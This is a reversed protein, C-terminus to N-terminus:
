RAFIALEFRGAFGVLIVINLRLYHCSLDSVPQLTRITVEEMGDALPKVEVEETQPEASSGQWDTLNTSVQVYYSLDSTGARRRYNMGHYLANTVPGTTLHGQPLGTTEVDMPSLDLAYEAANVLGDGDPDAQLGTQESPADRRFCRARWESYNVCRRDLDVDWPEAGSALIELPGRGDFDGRSVAQGGTGSGPNTGTDAWYLKRAPVDLVLGHPTDLNSYLTQVAPNTLAIPGGSFASL